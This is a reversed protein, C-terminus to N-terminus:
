LSNRLGYANANLPALVDGPLTRATDLGDRLLTAGADQSKAPM